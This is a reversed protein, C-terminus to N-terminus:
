PMMALYYITDGVAHPLKTTGAPSNQLKYECASTADDTGYYLCKCLNCYSWNPQLTCGTASWPTPAGPVNVCPMYYVGSGSSSHLFQGLQSGPISSNACWSGSLGDGWFLCLCQNCWYWPSQMYANGSPQQQGNLLFGPNNIILGYDTAGKSHSQGSDRALNYVCAGYDGAEGAYWVNRCLDCYAWQEQVETTFHTGYDDWLVISGNQSARAVGGTVATSAVSLGAASLGVALGSKFLGRRSLPVAPQSSEEM